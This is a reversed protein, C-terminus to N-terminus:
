ELPIAVLGIGNDMVLFGTPEGSPLGQPLIIRIRSEGTTPDMAMAKGKTDTFGSETVVVKCGQHKIEGKTNRIERWVKIGKTGFWRGSLTLSGDPNVAVGTVTPPLLWGRFLNQGKIGFQSTSLSLDVPLNQQNEPVALWAAATKGQKQWAAFAKADYLRIPKGWECAVSPVPDASSVKTLVKVTAKGPKGNTALYNGIVKPKAQFSAPPNFVQTAHVPFVSGATMRRGFNATIIMARTVAALSITAEEGEADGSWGIFALGPPAQATVENTSGGYAVVQTFVTAGNVTAGPTGDTQFTVLYEDIAFNATVSLDAAVNTERRAATLVGDSWSTFHHHAAPMATVTAGSDGALVTQTAPGSITGGAGAIYELRHWRAFNATLSLDEALSSIILPNAAAFDVGSGTRTWNKFGWGADPHATIAFPLNHAGLVHAGSGVDLGGAGVVALTLTFDDNEVSVAVAQSSLADFDDDSLEPNVSVTVTVTANDGVTLNDVGIVTVEQPTFWNDPSFTLTMPSAGALSDNASRINLVVDDVPPGTLTVTFTAEGGPESVNLQTRNLQFGPEALHRVGVAELDFGGSGSTPTPDYVPGNPGYATRWALSRNDNTNGDGVIDVIRVYRINNLAVLGSIVEPKEALTALDFGFGFGVKYKGAFGTLNSPEVAGFASVPSPTLSCNDFRVFNIGDTSVEVFALELFTDNMANEFVAFDWGEGDRIPRDFTMTIRGGNGLCVVDMVDDTAPGLAKNPTQWIADCGSGVEYDTWGTAWAAIAADNHAVKPEAASGGADAFPGASLPVGRFMAVLLLWVPLGSIGFGSVWLRIGGRSGPFAFRSGNEM